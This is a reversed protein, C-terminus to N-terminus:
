LILQRMPKLFMYKIKSCSEIYWEPVEHERMAEVYKEREEAPIKNWMGKRVREM